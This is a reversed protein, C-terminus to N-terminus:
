SYPLSCVHYIELHGLIWKASLQLVEILYSSVLCSELRTNKFYPDLANRVRLRSFLHVLISFKHAYHILVPMSPYRWHLIKHMYINSSHCIDAKSNLSTCKNWVTFWIQICLSISYKFSVRQSKWRYVLFESYHNAGRSWIWFIEHEFRPRSTMYCSPNKTITSPLHKSLWQTYISVRKM